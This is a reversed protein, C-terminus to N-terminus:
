GQMFSSTGLVGLKRKRINSELPTLSKDFLVDPDSRCDNAIKKCLVIGAIDKQSDGKVTKEFIEGLTIKESRCDNCYGEVYTVLDKQYVKLTDKSIEMEVTEGTEFSRDCSICKVHGFDDTIEIKCLDPQSTCTTCHRCDYRISFRMVKGDCLRSRVFSTDFDREWIKGRHGRQCTIDDLLDFSVPNSTVSSAFNVVNEV